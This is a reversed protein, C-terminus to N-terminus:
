AVLTTEITSSIGFSQHMLSTAPQLTAQQSPQMMHIPIMLTLSTTTTTTQTSTIWSEMRITIAHGLLNTSEGMMTMTKMSVDQGLVTATKTPLETTTTTLHISTQSISLVLRLTRGLTSQPQQLSDTPRYTELTSDKHKSHMTTSQDKSSVTTTMTGIMLTSSVMTTTTSHIQATVDTLVSLSITFEMTTMTLITCTASEM